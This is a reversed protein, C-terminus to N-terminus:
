RRRRRTRCRWSSTISRETRRDVQEAEDITGLCELGDLKSTTATACIASSASASSAIRREDARGGRAGARRQRRHARPRPRKGTAIGRARRDRARARPRPHRLPDRLAPLDGLTARSYLVDPIAPACGCCCAPSSSRPWSRASPSRCGSRRRRRADPPHPLAGARRLRAPLRDDRDAAAALYTEVEQQGKTVPIVEFSFRLFWACLMALNSAVADNILYISALTRHKKEIMTSDVQEGLEACFKENFGRARSRRRTRASPPAIGRAAVRGRRAGPAALRGGREDFFIGTAGDVVSDRVGGAGLAVVPTGLAM